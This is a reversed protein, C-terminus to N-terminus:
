DIDSSMEDVSVTYKPLGFIQVITHVQRSLYFHGNKEGITDKHKKVWRQFTLWSVDYASALQKHTYSRIIFEQSVAAKDEHGVSKASTKRVPKM